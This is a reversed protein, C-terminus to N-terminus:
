QLEVETRAVRFLINGVGQATTSSLNVNDFFEFFIGEEPGIRFIVNSPIVFFRGESTEGNLRLEMTLSDRNVVILTNWLRKRATTFEIRQVGNAALATNTASNTEVEKFVVM